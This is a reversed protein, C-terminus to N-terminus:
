QQSRGPVPTRPPKEQLEKAEEGRASKARRPAPTRDEEGVARKVFGPMQFKRRYDGPTMGSLRRFLRRFSALDEYGVERAIAEIPRATTELM